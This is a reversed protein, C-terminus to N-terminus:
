KNKKDSPNGAGSRYVCGFCRAVFVPFFRFSFKSVNVKNEDDDDGFVMWM